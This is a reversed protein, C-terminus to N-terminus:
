RPQTAPITTPRRGVGPRASVESVGRTWFAFGEVLPGVSVDHGKPPEWSLNWYSTKVDDQDPPTLKLESAAVKGVLRGVTAPKGSAAVIIKPNDESIFRWATTTGDPAVSKAEVRDEIRLTWTNLDALVREREDASLRALWDPYSGKEKASRRIADGVAGFDSVLTQGRGAPGTSPRTAAAAERGTAAEDGVARV